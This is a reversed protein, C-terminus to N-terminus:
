GRAAHVAARRKEQAVGAVLERGAGDRKAQRAGAEARAQQTTKVEAQLATQEKRAARGAVFVSTALVVVVVVVALKIWTGMEANRFTVSVKLGARETRRREGIDGWGRWWRMRM